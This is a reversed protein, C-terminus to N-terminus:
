RLFIGGETTVLQYLYAGHAYDSADTYLVVKYANHYLIAKSKLQVYGKADRIRSAGRHNM